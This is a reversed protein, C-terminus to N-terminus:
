ILLRTDSKPLLTAALLKRTYDHRPNAFTAACEGQEVAKGQYMVCVRDSLHEVVALNHSIFVMALNFERKLSLLLNIIQAQVSVDLASTPEDCILAAPNLILARAIAVRQRQGGSLEGPYAYALRRPFGVRDLMDLVERRWEGGRWHIRLPQLVTEYITYSPNLSSYPDQFVPQLLSARALREMDRVPTGRLLVEGSEPLNLGLMINALTSKGCGSEGVLGLTEGANLTLSVNDLAQVRRAPKMLGGGISFSQSVGNVQLLPGSETERNM